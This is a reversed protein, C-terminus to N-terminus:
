GRLTGGTAKEVAAIIRTSVQDIEADTMTKDQPRLTVEIALSKKGEGLSAGAFVDFVNVKEILTRDAGAAARLLTGAAVQEDVIFAYDRRVPQLDSVVYISKARSAKRRPAPIHDLVVEFAMLPGDVELVDLVRPHLEGFFGLQNKPGLQIVAAHGPHFWDPVGTTLQVKAADLGAAELVNLADAKVDYADVARDDGRWHRGGGDLRQTARRLGAACVRQGEPSPDMFTQGVEFLALETLGRDANRQAARVLGPLLSPRMHSMQPSIPNSLALAPAGGGFREADDQAIFSYTVVEVMGRAALTRKVDRTRQQGTNLVPKLVAGARPLPVAAVKNLGIIRTAEEVLDAKGAVDPRWEPVSVDATGGQGGVAFGLRNLAGAIESDDAKLGTLRKVQSFAFAIQHRRLPPKGAVFPRSVQGGCLDMVMQAAVDLGPIVFAPDVGREFRYRADSVIGTRRGTRATTLPDFYACEIFINKTDLQAGSYTGGMIGGLGLVRADDAIVCMSEDVQYTKGDLACFQEGARGMRAGITGTLKDADYVHLPRGLDYSIYNTMDVLASIPRLGITRLRQQMWPPSPGNRVGRVYCGAFIPCIHANDDSFDLAIEMPSDYTGELAPITQKRLTGVGAAALDRAIGYVGLCDPRNPTIGIEIVPDDLGMVKAFPTGIPTDPPLDIIGEHEDSIQMERESCLMGNSAVGRIRVPKLDLGTGPIRTGSPAFVGKMGARANPAGCVVQVIESGTDVLCVRLSDANPHPEASTVHAITFAAYDKAPDTIAEVELGIMTLTDSIEQLCAQTQLHEKLWSLTFKM